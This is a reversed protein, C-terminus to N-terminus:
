DPKRSRLKAVELKATKKLWEQHVDVRTAEGSGSCDDFGMSVVGAISLTQGDNMLAPGGSDGSCSTKGKYGYAFTGPQMSVIPISLHRKVGLGALEGGITKFGFGVFDVPTQDKMIEGLPPRGEYVRMGKGRSESLEVLAIDNAKSLDDYLKGDEQRRYYVAKVATKRAAPNGVNTGEVFALRTTDIAGYVCHAATLAMTSTILTATCHPAGGLTLAGVAEYGTKVDTGGALQPVLRSKDRQLITAFLPARRVAVEIRPAARDTLDSTAGKASQKLLVSAVITLTRLPRAEFAIPGSPPSKAVAESESDNITMTLSPTAPTVTVVLEYPIRRVQSNFRIAVTGSATAEAVAETDDSHIAGGLGCRFAYEASHGGRASNTVMLDLAVRDFRTAVVTTSADASAASKNEECGSPSSSETGASRVSVNSENQRSDSTGNGAHALAAVSKTVEISFQEEASLYYPRGLALAVLTLGACRTKVSLTV